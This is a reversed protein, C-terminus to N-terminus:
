PTNTCNGPVLNANTAAFNTTCAWAGTSATRTLVVDGLSGAQKTLVAAGASTVGSLVVVKNKDTATTSVVGEGGLETQLATADAITTSFFAADVATKLVQVSAYAGTAEAKSVYKQYQPVAVAALIGIIAIVVLLEILTFGQQNTKM